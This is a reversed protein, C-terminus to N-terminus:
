LPGTSARVRLAPPFTLTRHRHGPEEEALLLDAAARGLEYKPRAVTTLAPTLRAAFQLDDYGIVSVDAPVRVGLRTLGHIVGLAALDNLCIIATPPDPRELLGPVAADAAEMVTPPGLVVDLLDAPDAGAERLAQRLGDRRRDVPAVDVRGRLFAMRRHGLSILHEGTMRGGAVDDVMVACLDLDGPPHDLLVVPTGRTSLRRLRRTGVPSILIGRVGQEELMDLAWSEKDPRVDTSCTLAVCGAEALRDEIGRNVEAYFPNALDLSVVGVVRSPVGRLQRAPGSRVYGVAAMADRVRRRTTETVLAPHNLVNAVTSVSVGAVRAVERMGRRATDDAM